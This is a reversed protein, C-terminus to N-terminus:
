QVVIKSQLVANGNQLIVMYIGKAVQSLNMQYQNDGIVSTSNESLIVRGTIDILRITFAEEKDSIFAVTAQNNAPNPYINFSYDFNDTEGDELRASTHFAQSASFGSNITGSANCNTQIQWVYATNHVLGSFGYHTNPTITYNTWSIPSQKSIRITYGAYCSPQIWNATASVSAIATTSLSTPITCSTTLTKSATGACGYTNTVTVTYTGASTASITPSTASTSWHYSSSTSATLIVPGVNCITAAGTISATPIPYNTVTSTLSATGTCGNANDVTVTYTGSVTIHNTETLTGNSWHYSFWSGADLTNYGGTGCYPTAISTIHPTLPACPGSYIFNGLAIPNTGVNVTNSVTMTAPNIITVTNAFINAVCVVSGDPSVSAGGVGGNSTITHSVTNTATEIVKVACSNTNSSNYAVYVKSGDPNVAIGQPANGVTITASVTNNSTNIVSVTVDNSNSVYVKSGDPIVAIGDPSNGVTITASVIYTNSISNYTIVSVTNDDYNGVYIKSGDTSVAIGTANRGVLISAITGYTLTNIVLIRSDYLDGFNEVVYVKTGDHSVAIGFPSELEDLIVTATVADLLPNFNTTIVSITEDGNNTVYVKSGNPSVAVGYPNVGVPITKVVAHTAVNIVSVTNSGYNTIYAFQANVNSVFLFALIFIIALRQISQRFWSTGQNSARDLPSSNQNKSKKNFNKM